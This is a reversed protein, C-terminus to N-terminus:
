LDDRWNNNLCFCSKYQLFYLIKIFLFNTVPGHYDKIDM